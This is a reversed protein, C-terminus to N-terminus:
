LDGRVCRESMRQRVSEYMLISAAASANLSEISGEMPLFVKRDAREMFVDCAGNAENGIILAISEAMDTDFYIHDAKPSTCITRIGHKDLLRLAEEPTDLYAIKVRYLSGVAARVTKPSFIDATGKMVLIHRFGAADATRIITGLNGPDQLRDLVVVNPAKEDEFFRGVDCDPQSSIAAIGQPSETDAMGDFLAKPLLFLDTGCTKLREAMAAGESHDTFGERLFASVPPKDNKLAEEVLNMGEIIYQGTRDRYKRKYLRTFNKLKENTASTIQKVM